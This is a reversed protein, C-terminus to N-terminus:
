GDRYHIGSTTEVCRYSLIKACSNPSSVIDASFVSISMMQLIQLVVIEEKPYDASVDITVLGNGDVAALTGVADVDADASRTGSGCSVCFTVTFILINVIATKM